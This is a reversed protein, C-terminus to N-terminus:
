KIVRSVVFLQALLGVVNVTSFFNAAYQGILQQASLGGAAGRRVADTAAAAFTRDLVYQGTTNVWNLLLIMLAILLLYRQSLVLRFASGQPAPKPAEAVIRFEGTQTIAPVVGSSETSPLHSETRKRERGDVWNFILLSVILLVGAVLALQYVGLPGILRATIVSGLVAGASQGFAVIPFLRKGEDESYVDNAFSWFQAVVMLNFIGAWLYFAVGIHVGSRALLYFGILCLIFFWTV